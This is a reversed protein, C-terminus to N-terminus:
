VIQNAKIPQLAILVVQKLLDKKLILLPEWFGGIHGFTPIFALNGAAVAPESPTNVGGLNANAAPPSSEDTEQTGEAKKFGVVHEDTLHSRAGVTWRRCRKCWKQTEGKVTKTHSEGDKPPTRIPNPNGNNKKDDDKNNPCNTKVHGPEGCQFCKVADGHNMGDIRQTLKQIDAKLAVEPEKRAHSPPWLGQQKLSRYKLKLPMVIEEQWNTLHGMDAEDHISTARLTFALV